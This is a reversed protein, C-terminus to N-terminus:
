AVEEPSPEYTLAFVAELLWKRFSENDSFQKCLETDDKILGGLRRHQGCGRGGAIRALEQPTMQTDTATM